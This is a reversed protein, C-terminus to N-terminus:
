PRTKIALAKCVTMYITAKPHAQACGGVRGWTAPLETLLPASSERHGCAGAEDAAIVPGCQAAPTAQSQTITARGSSHQFGGRDGNM